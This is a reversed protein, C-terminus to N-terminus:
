VLIMKNSLSGVVQKRQHAEALMGLFDVSLGKRMALTAVNCTQDGNSSRRNDENKAAEQPYRLLYGYPPQLPCGRHRM